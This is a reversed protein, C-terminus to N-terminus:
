CDLASSISSLRAAPFYEGCANIGTNPTATSLSTLKLASGVILTSCVCSCLPFIRCAKAANACSIFRLRFSVGLASVGASGSWECPSSLLPFHGKAWSTGQKWLVNWENPTVLFVHSTLGSTLCENPWENPQSIVLSDHLPLPPLPNPAPAVILDAL